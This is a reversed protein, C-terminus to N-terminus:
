INALNCTLFSIYGKRIKLFFYKKNTKLGTTTDLNKQKELDAPHVGDKKCTFRMNGADDVLLTHKKGV